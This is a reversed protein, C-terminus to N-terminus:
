LGTAFWFDEVIFSFRGTAAYGAILLLFLFIFFFVLRTARKM